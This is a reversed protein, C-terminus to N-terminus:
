IACNKAAFTEGATIPVADLNLATSGRRREAPLAQWIVVSESARQRVLTSQQPNWDEDASAEDCGFTSQFSDM